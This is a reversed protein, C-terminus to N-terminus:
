WAPARCFRGQGSEWAFRSLFARFGWRNPRRLAPIGRHSRPGVEVTHPTVRIATYDLSEPESDVTVAQDRIAKDLPFVGWLLCRNHHLGRM